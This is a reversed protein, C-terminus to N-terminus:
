HLAQGCGPLRQDGLTVTVTVQFHEGSMSDVCEEGLVEVSLPRGEVETAWVTRRASADVTPEPTAFAHREAGYATILVSSDPGIELTWGPENGAAWFDNGRLKADEIISSRRNEVCSISGGDATEIRAERGKSWFTTAGDSYRAGSASRVHPLSLTEGPLFLWVRDPDRFNAVIYTGDGCDYAHTLLESENETATCGIVVLAIAGALAIPGAGTTPGAPATLGCLSM